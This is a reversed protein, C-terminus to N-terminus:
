LSAEYLWSKKRFSLVGQNKRYLINYYFLSSLNDQRICFFVWM